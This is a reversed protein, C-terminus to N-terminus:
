KFPSRPQWKTEPVFKSLLYPLFKNIWSTHYQLQVEMDYPDAGVSSKIELATRSLNLYKAGDEIATELLKLLINFYIQYRGNLQVNYGLFHADGIKDNRLYTFFAVMQDGLFVGRLILKDGFTQKLRGFYNEDLLFMSFAARDATDKYMSYMESNYKLAQEEDMTLFSLDKGKKKVKKFKVRYKSKVTALFDDYSQWNERITVIMDPQVKFRTYSKAPFNMDKLPGDTYFDKLLTSQIRKKKYKRIYQRVENLIEPILESSDPKLDQDLRIGYEGTLLVNGCILMEHNIRNFAFKTLAVKVKEWLKDSHTHARFDKGLEITKHQCYLLGRIDDGEKLIVYFYNYGQPGSEELLRLYTSEV